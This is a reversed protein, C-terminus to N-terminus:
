RQAHNEALKGTEIMFHRESGALAEHFSVENKAAWFRLSCLLDMLAEDQSRSDKRGRSRSPSVAKIAAAGEAVGRRRCRAIETPTLFLGDVAAFAIEQAARPYAALWLRIKRSAGHKALWREVWMERDHESSLDPFEHAEAFAVAAEEDLMADVDPALKPKDLMADVSARINDALEPHHDDIFQLLRAFPAIRKVIADAVTKDDAPVTPDDIDGAADLLNPLSLVDYSGDTRWGAIHLADGGRVGLCRLLDVDIRVFDEYSGRVPVGYEDTVLTERSGEFTFAQQRM